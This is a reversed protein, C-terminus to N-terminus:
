LSVVQDSVNEQGILDSFIQDSLFFNIPHPFGKIPCSFLNIPRHFKTRGSISLNGTLPFFVVLPIIPCKQVRLAHTIM